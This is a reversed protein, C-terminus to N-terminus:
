SSSKVANRVKESLFVGAKDLLVVMENEFFQLMLKLIHHALNVGMVPALSENRLHGSNQPSQLEGHIKSNRISLREKWDFLPRSSCCSLASLWFAEVFVHDDWVVLDHGKEDTKVLKQEKSRFIGLLHQFQLNVFLLLLDNDHLLM